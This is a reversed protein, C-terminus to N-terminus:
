AFPGLISNLSCHVHIFPCFNSSFGLAEVAEGMEWFLLATFGLTETYLYNKDRRVKFGIDYHCEKILESHELPSVNQLCM